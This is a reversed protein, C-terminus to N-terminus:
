FLNRIENSRSILNLKLVLFTLMTLAIIAVALVRLHERQPRPATVPAPMQPLIASPSLYEQRGRIYEIRMRVSDTIAELEGKKGGSYRGQFGLLLCLLYVELVDAL